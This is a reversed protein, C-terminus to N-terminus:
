NNVSDVLGEKLGFRKKAETCTMENEHGYCMVRRYGHPYDEDPIKLIKCYDGAGDSVLNPCDGYGKPRTNKDM